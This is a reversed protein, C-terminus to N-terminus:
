SCLIEKARETPFNYSIVSCPMEAIRMTLWLLTQPNDDYDYISIHYKFDNMTGLVRRNNTKTIQYEKMLSLEQHIIKEEINITRLLKVLAEEFRPFLTTIPAAPVIVPLLSMESTFLALHFPKRYIYDVYWDGLQTTSSPITNATPNIKTLLKRTCRYLLMIDQFSM